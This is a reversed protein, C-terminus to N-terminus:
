GMEELVKTMNRIITAVEARTAIGQPDFFNGEKGSIIGCNRITNVAETAWSSILNSDAFPLLEEQFDIIFDREKMYNNVMVAMQERSIPENPSFTDDSTGTAIGNAIGWSVYPYFWDHLNMDIFHDIEVTKSGGDVSRMVTIFMARTMSENPAFNTESIGLFHKQDLVFLISDEAWHGRIDIYSDLFEDYRDLKESESQDYELKEEEDTHNKNKNSENQVTGNYGPGGNNNSQTNEDESDTLGDEPYTSETLYPTFNVSVDSFKTSQQLFNVIKVSSVDFELQHDLLLHGLNAIKSDDNLTTDSVVYLTINSDNSYKLFSNEDEHDHEYEVGEFSGSLLSLTIEVGLIGESLGTLSINNESIEVILPSETAFIPLISNLCLSTSTFFSCLKMKTKQNM